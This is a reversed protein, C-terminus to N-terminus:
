QLVYYNEVQGIKNRASDDWPLFKERPSVNGTVVGKERINYQEVVYIGKEDQRLYIAAHSTGNAHNGYRGDGDFTAIATGPKIDPNGRVAAGQRWESAPSPAGTAQTVLAVCEGDGVKGHGDWQQPNDAVYNRVPAAARLAPAMDSREGPQETQAPTVEAAPAGESRVAPRIADAVRYSPEPNPKMPQIRDGGALPPPAEAVAVVGASAAPHGFVEAARRHAAVPDDALGAPPVKAAAAAPRVPLWTAQEVEGGRQAKQVATESHPVGDPRRPLMVAPFKVWGPHAALWATTPETGRPVWLMDFREEGLGPRRADDM